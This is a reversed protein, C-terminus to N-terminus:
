QSFHSKMTLRRMRVSRRPRAAAVAAVVEAVAWEGHTRSEFGTQQAQGVTSGMVAWLVAVRVLWLPKIMRLVRGWGWGHALGWRWM